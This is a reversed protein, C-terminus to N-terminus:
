RTAEAQIRPCRTRLRESDQATRGPVPQALIPELRAAARHLVTGPTISLDAADAQMAAAARTIRALTGLRHVDRATAVAFAGTGGSLLAPTTHLRHRAAQWSVTVPDIPQGAARMDLLVSYLQGHGPGHFHAPQLWRAAEDLHSPEDILDRLARASTQAAPEDAPSVAGASHAPGAEASSGSASRFPRTALSGPNGPVAGNLTSPMDQRRAPGPTTSRNRPRPNQATRYETAPRRGHQPISAWRAASATIDDRTSAAQRLAETLDGPEAAQALRSAARSLNRRIAAEVVIAAYAGAHEPRPAAEMLSALPVADRSVSAPLDPNARLERYVAPTDPLQGRDRLRRMAALVQGHWPRLMDGPEVHDLAHRHRAPDCLVAGLLAQEAEAGSYM